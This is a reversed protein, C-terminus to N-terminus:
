KAEEELTPTNQKNKIHRKDLVKVTRRVAASGMAKMTILQMVLLKNLEVSHMM